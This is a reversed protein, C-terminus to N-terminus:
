KKEAYYKAVAYVGYAIAGWKLGAGVNEGLSEYWTKESEIKDKTKTKDNKVGKEYANKAAITKKKVYVWSIGGQVDVFAIWIGPNGIQYWLARGFSDGKQFYRTPAKTGSTDAYGSTAEGAINQVNMLDSFNVYNGDSIIVSPYYQENSANNGNKSNQAKSKATQMGVLNCWSDLAWPPCDGWGNIPQQIPKRDLYM